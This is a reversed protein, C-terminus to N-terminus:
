PRFPRPTQGPAPCSAPRNTPTPTPRPEPEDFIGAVRERIARQDAQTLFRQRVFRVQYIRDADVGSALQALHPLDSDDLTTFLNARAANVLDPARPLLGLPDLQRRVQAIVYQQRRMRQYDSDQRRSRAYALAMEGEFFDCGRRIDLNIVRGDSLRYRPDQVRAPIDLWVGGVADVLAIFGKTEIMGLAEQNFEKAM